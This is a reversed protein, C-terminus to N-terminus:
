SSAWKRSMCLIRSRWNNPYRISRETRDKRPSKKMSWFVWDDLRVGIVGMIDHKSQGVPRFFM